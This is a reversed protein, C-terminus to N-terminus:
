VVDHNLKEAPLYHTRVGGIIASSIVYYHRSLITFPVKLTDQCEQAHFTVKQPALLERFGRWICTGFLHETSPFRVLFTSFCFVSLDSKRVAVTVDNPVAWLLTKAAPMATGHRHRAGQAHWPSAGHLKWMAGKSCLARSVAIPSIRDYSGMGISVCRSVGRPLGTADRSM